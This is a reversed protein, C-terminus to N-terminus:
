IREPVKNIKKFQQKADYMAKDARRFVTEVDEDSTTYEAIGVAASYRFWPDVTTKKFSQDFSDVLENVRDQRNDYDEGVLLAVFEDGGVRFIPSHKFVNCIVRCCGKLYADGASHGYNDNVYKLRNVDVMVVAFETIESGLKSNIEDIKRIYASKNGVSTLSDRYAEKNMVGLQEDKKKLVEDTRQKDLEMNSIDHLYDIIRVQMSYIANYIEGIEDNRKVKVDIVGSEEYSKDNAPSFKKIRVTLEDLPKVVVKNILLVACAFVVLTFVVSGIIVYLLVTRREKMIDDMGVDCGIHCVLNGDSDYVPAYASCLWGWDGHSITPPIFESADVGAFEAERLEFYGTEYIPNDDDDLLYMDHDADDGGWKIIYLYKIDEMNRLYRCLLSRQECYNDWLGATKLYEEIVKEDDEAEAKDRLKQFEDSEAVKALETLFDGDVFASFNTASDMALSKFYRDIKGVNILYTIMAAGFAAAFVTLIVFLYMKEGISFRKKNQEM